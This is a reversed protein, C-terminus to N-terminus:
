KMPKKRRAAASNKKAPQLFFDVGMELTAMRLMERSNTNAALFALPPRASTPM